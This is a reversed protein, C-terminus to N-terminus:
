KASGIEASRRAAARMADRVATSVGRNDLTSVAAATTGGPSTVAERLATPTQGADRLMTAAGVATQVALQHALAAPLGLEAGTAVMAEVLYFVYAPGSGSLATVANLQEEQVRVVIGVATLLSEATALDGETAHTGPAIASIGEAVLAPTNPMCRVVATGVPLVAEIRAATVGAAVSVVLADPRVRDAIEALLPEVHQPKTAVLLVSADAAEAADVVRVGYTQSLYAGRERQTEVVRVDDPSTGGRLLGALLAEGMKGGGFVAIIRSPTM